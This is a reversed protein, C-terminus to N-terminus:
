GRDAMKQDAYNATKQTDSAVTAFYNILAELRAPAETVHSAGGFISTISAFPGSPRPRTRPTTQFLGRLGTGISVLCEIPQNEFTPVRELEGIAEM